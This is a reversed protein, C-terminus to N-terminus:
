FRNAVPRLVRQATAPFGHSFADPSIPPSLFFGQIEDCGESQLFDIQEQSEVGEAIVGLRLNRAMAIITKVIACDDQNNPIDRVFSQDIKLRDFPLQKLYSLSSYGTGFDDVALEVGTAKIKHLKEVVDFVDKVLSGETIELELQKPELGSQELAERVQNVFDAQQLQLVAVNVAIRIELGQEQKWMVAQKCAARLVWAGVPVILGTEEALFVFDKPLVIGPGPRNWRILAEAGVIQGSRLSRQPQFQLFFENRDLARRLGTELDLRRELQRAMSSDFFQWGNRGAAKARYLATDANRMLQQCDQGDQPFLAIGMSVTIYVERGAVLIPAALAQRIREALHEVKVGNRDVEEMLAIFEDGGIRALMEMEGLCASLKKSLLCLLEDGKEHGLSDNLTNFKDVDILIIAAPVQNRSAIAFAHTMRQLLARRNPLKTLPDVHIAQYLQTESIKQKTIDVTVGRLHLRGEGVGAVMVNSRLWIDRGDPATVHHELPKFFAPGETAFSPVISKGDAGMSLKEHWFRPNAVWEDARYGSIAAANGSAYTFRFEPLDAEWVIGDIGDVLEQYRKKSALVAANSEALAVNQRALDAQVAGLDKMRQWLFRLLVLFMATSLLGIVGIQISRQYWPKLVNERSMSAAAIIPSQSSGAYGFIRPINDVMSRDVQYAGTPNVRVRRFLMSDTVNLNMVQETLPSEMIVWGDPRVLLLRGDAGLSLSRYFRDFYAMDLGFSFIMKLSGDPNNVRRTLPITWKDTTRDKIPRSVYLEPDSHTSVYRYDLQDRSDIPTLPYALASARMWGQADTVSITGAQPMREIQTSLIEHIERENASLSLGRREVEAIADRLRTDAEGITRMAHESLTASINRVDSEAQAITSRYDQVIAIGALLVYLAPLTIALALLGRRLKRISPTMMAPEKSPIVRVPTDEGGRLGRDM